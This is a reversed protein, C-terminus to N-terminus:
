AAARCLTEALWLAAVISTYDGLVHQIYDFSRMTCMILWKRSRAALLIHSRGRIAKTQQAFIAIHRARFFM